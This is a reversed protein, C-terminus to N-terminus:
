TTQRVPSRTYERLIRLLQEKSDQEIGELNIVKPSRDNYRYVTYVDESYEVSKVEGFGFNAGWFSNVRITIGRKNWQVHNRYFFPRFSHFFVILYSALTLGKLVKPSLFSFVEFMNLVLFLAAAVMLALMIGNKGKPSLEQFKISKMKQTKPSPAGHLYSM